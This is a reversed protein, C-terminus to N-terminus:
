LKAQQVPGNRAIKGIDASIRQLHTLQQQSTKELTGLPNGGLSAVARAAASSGRELAAQSTPIGAAGGISSGFGPRLSLAAASKELEAVRAKFAKGATGNIGEAIRQLGEGGMAQAQIAAAAAAMAKAKDGTIVAQLSLWAAEYSKVAAAARLTLGALLSLDAAIVGGVETAVRGVIPWTMGFASLAKGMRDISKILEDALAAISPALNAAFKEAIGKIAGGLKAIETGATVVNAADLNTLTLGLKAVSKAVATVREAALDKSLFRKDIDLFAATISKVARRVVLATGIAAAGVAAIAIGVPGASAAMAGFSSISGLSVSRLQGISRAVIAIRKSNNTASTAFKQQTKQADGFGGLWGKSDLTLFAKLTGVSASM